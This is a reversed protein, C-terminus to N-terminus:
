NYHGKAWRITPDMWDKLPKFIFGHGLGTNLEIEMFNKIEYASDDIREIASVGFSDSKEFICLINGCYQIDPLTQMDSNQHSAIFVFNLAPNSALTSVYQAIYGGKSTGAITINKPQVGIDMLSDIQTIVKAAYSRANVNGNRKESIVKLGSQKFATTIEEYECLGYDPHSENLDHTEIFRNHLFFLYSDTKESGCSHLIVCYALGGILCRTLSSKMKELITSATKFGPSILVLWTKRM